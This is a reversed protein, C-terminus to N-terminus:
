KPQCGFNCIKTINIPDYYNSFTYLACAQVSDSFKVFKDYYSMCEVRATYINLYMISKPITYIDSGNASISVVIDSLTYNTNPKLILNASPIIFIYSTDFDVLLSLIAHTSDNIKFFVIDNQMIGNITYLTGFTRKDISTIFTANTLSITFDVTTM